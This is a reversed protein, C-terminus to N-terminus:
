VSAIARSSVSGFYKEFTILPVGFEEALGIFTADPASLSRRRSLNHRVVLDTAARMREEDLDYLTILSANVWQALRNKVVAALSPGAKRRTVGVIEIPAIRPLHIRYAGTELGDIYHLALPRQTKEEDNLRTEDVLSVILVSTDVVIDERTM